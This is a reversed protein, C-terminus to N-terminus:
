ASLILFLTNTSLDRPYCDFGHMMVPWNKDKDFWAITFPNFSGFWASVQCSMADGRDPGHRRRYLPTSFYVFEPKWFWALEWFRWKCRCRGHTAPYSPKIIFSTVVFIYLFDLRVPLVQSKKMTKCLKIGFCLLINPLYSGCNCMWFATKQVFPVFVLHTWRSLWTKPQPM